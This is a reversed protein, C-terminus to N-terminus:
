TVVVCFCGRLRRLMAYNVEGSSAGAALTSSSSEMYHICFAVGDGFYLIAVCVFRWKAVGSIHRHTTTKQKCEIRGLPLSQRLPFLTIERTEGKAFPPLYHIALLSILRM